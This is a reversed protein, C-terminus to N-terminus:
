ARPSQLSSKENQTIGENANLNAINVKQQESKERQVRIYARILAKYALLLDIGTVSDTVVTDVPNLHYSVSKSM